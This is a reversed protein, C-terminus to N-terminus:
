ILLRYTEDSFAKIIFVQNEIGRTHPFDISEIAIQFIDMNNLLQCVVPVSSPFKAIERLQSLMFNRFDEDEEIIVGTISLEWDDMSWREKVSGQTGSKSVYRRVIINKRSLSIVPDVPLKFEDYSWRKGASDTYVAASFVLPIIWNTNEVLGSNLRAQLEASAEKAEKDSVNVNTKLPIVPPFAFGFAAQTHVALNTKDNIYEVPDIRM